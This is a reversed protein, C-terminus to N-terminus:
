DGTVVMVPSEPHLDGPGGSEGVHGLDSIDPPYVEIPSNVDDARVLGAAGPGLRGFAAERCRHGPRYELNM